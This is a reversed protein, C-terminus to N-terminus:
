VMSGGNARVNTGNLWNGGTLVSDVVRAIDEAEGLKKYPNMNKITEVLASPKGELFMETSTPGPSLVSVSIGRSVFAPDKSLARVSQEIAGKSAIYPLYNPTVTSSITLSSSFFLIVGKDSIHPGLEKVLFVPGLVNVAFVHNWVQEDVEALTKMPMVGAALIIYDIKGNTDPLHKIAEDVKKTLEAAAHHSSLDCRIGVAKQATKPTATKTSSGIHLAEQIDKLKSSTAEALSPSTLSAALKESSDSSSVIIVNAGKAWLNRVVQEGIGRSGTVLATKGAYVSM